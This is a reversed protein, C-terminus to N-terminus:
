RVVGFLVSLPISISPIVIVATIVIALGRWLRDLAPSNWGLTQFLSWVGHHLHFGLALMALIYFASVYWVSFSAVMNHYVDGPRFDPNVTGTTLDLLHYIIFLLIIVGGWRMTRSAYTSALNEKRAYGVPRASLDLRTLQYASLIHLVVSALLIVRVIWLAQSYVLMPEGVVRLFEAYENLHQAGLYIKVNGYVHLLMYGVLIIGTIAMVVKKGITTRYLGLIGTMPRSRVHTAGIM